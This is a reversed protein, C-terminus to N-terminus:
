SKSELKKVRRSLIEFKRQMEELEFRYAVNNLKLEIKELREDVVDFRKNLSGELDEFGNKVALALDNISKALEQNAIDQKPM